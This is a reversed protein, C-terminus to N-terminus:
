IRQVDRDHSEKVQVCACSGKWTTRTAAREEVCPANQGCDRVGCVNRVEAERRAKVVRVIDYKIECEPEHM